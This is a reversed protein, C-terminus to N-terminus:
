RYQIYLSILSCIRPSQPTILKAVLAKKKKKKWTITKVVHVAVQIKMAM